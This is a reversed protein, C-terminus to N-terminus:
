ETSDPAAKWERALRSAEDIQQTTMLKELREREKGAADNGQMAALTDWMDAQVVDRAVGTGSAYVTGLLAQAMGDGQGAARRWWKVAEAENKAVGQGFLYAGGLATQAAAYGNDAARKWWSVAAADDHHLHSTVGIVLEAKVDGQGAAQCLTALSKLAAANAPNGEADVAEGLWTAQEAASKSCPSDAAGGGFALAAAPLMVAVVLFPASRM